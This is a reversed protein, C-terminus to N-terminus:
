VARVYRWADTGDDYFRAERGIRRYGRAEYLSIAAQNDERVELRLEVAGAQRALDEARDLLLRGLGRGRAGPDVMISYLRARQSRARLLVTAGGLLVGGVEAVVIRARPSLLHRRFQRLSMRDGSFCRLELEFLARAEHPRAMRFMPEVILAHSVM